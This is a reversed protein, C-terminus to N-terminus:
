KSKRGFQIHLKRMRGRLTSPHLGLLRAAGHQGEVQGRTQALAAQIHSAVVEDLPAIKDPLTKPTERDTVSPAAILHTFRLLGDGEKSQSLILAREVLNEMERVNGPWQYSQLLEISGPALPPVSQIKLEKAKVDLFHTLLAPIDETRQRLPPIVIPFVNLRFWLDQRFQGQQVM